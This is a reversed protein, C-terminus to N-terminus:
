VQNNRFKQVLNQVENNRSKFAIVATRENEKYGLEVAIYYMRMLNFSIIQM